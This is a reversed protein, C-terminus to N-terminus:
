STYSQCYNIILYHGPAINKLLVEVLMVEEFAEVSGGEGRGGGGKGLNFELGKVPEAYNEHSKM